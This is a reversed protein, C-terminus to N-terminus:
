GAPTAVPASDRLRTLLPAAAIGSCMAVVFVIPELQGSALSSVAPAPCLGVLGWGAGFIAAGGVLRADIDRKTPMDFSLDLLPGRQRAALRFAVFSVAVAGAMVFALSPDWAGAVDLFAKVKMPAVMGGAALGTGFLIGSGLAVLNRLM